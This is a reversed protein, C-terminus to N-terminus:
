KLKLIQKVQEWEASLTPNLKLFIKESFTIGANAKSTEYSTAAEFVKAQLIISNPSSQLLAYLDNYTGECRSRLWELRFWRSFMQESFIAAAATAAFALDTNRNLVAGLFCVIYISVKIREHRAMKLLVAKSFFSNEMYAVGLFRIPNSQDNNYYGTTQEHTLPIRFAKSFLDKRRMEEARPTLYLRIVLGIVFVAIVVLVFASQVLDYVVPMETKKVLLAAFSLAAAVYFLWGSASDAAKVSTFYRDRIPDHRQQQNDM